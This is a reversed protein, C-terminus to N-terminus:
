VLTIRNEMWAANLEHVPEEQSQWLVELWGLISALEGTVEFTCVEGVQTSTAAVTVQGAYTVQVGLLAEHATEDEVPLDLTLRLM